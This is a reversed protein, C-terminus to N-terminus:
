QLEIYFEWPGQRDGIGSIRFSMNRADGPVPDLFAPELGWTLRVGKDLVETIASYGADKFVGGVAYDAQLPYIGPPPSSIYPPPLSYGPPTILAYIRCGVASMEVWELTVAVGSAEQSQNVAITKELAGQPYRIDVGGANNYNEEEAVTSSGRTLTIYEVDVEYLAPSVPKGHSDLQDWLLTYTVTEGAVLRVDQNGRDFTRLLIGRRSIETYPPFYAVTLPEQTSNTLSLNIEVEEGPFYFPKATVASVQLSAAHQSSVLPPPTPAPSPATISNREPSTKPQQAVGTDTDQAGEYVADFDTSQMGGPLIGTGWIVAVSLAVVLVSAIATRWLPRGLLSSWREWLSVQMVQGRDAIRSLLRQKLGAAFDSRPESRLGILKRAFGIATLYDDGLDHNEEPKQGALMRDLDRSFEKEPIIKRKM